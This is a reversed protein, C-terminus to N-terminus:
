RTHPELDKRGNRGAAVSAVALPLVLAAGYLVLAVARRDSLADACVAHATRADAAIDLAEVARKDRGRRQAEDFTREADSVINDTTQDSWEPAIWTGCM